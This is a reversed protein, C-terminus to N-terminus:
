FKLCGALRRTPSKVASVGHISVPVRCILHEGALLSMARMVTQRSHRYTVAFDRITPLKAGAKFEGDAIKKRIIAALQAYARPDEKV